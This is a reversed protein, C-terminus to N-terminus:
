AKSGFMLTEGPRGAKFVFYLKLKFLDNFICRRMFTHELHCLSYNEPEEPCAEKSPGRVGTGTCPSNGAKRLKCRQERFLRPLLDHATRTAPVDWAETTTAGDARFSQGTEPPPAQDSLHGPLEPWVVRPCVPSVARGPRPETTHPSLSPPPM